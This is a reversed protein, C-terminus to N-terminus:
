ASVPDDDDDTLLLVGIAIGAIAAIIIAPAIESEEGLSNEGSIPASTRLNFAGASQAACGFLAIRGM